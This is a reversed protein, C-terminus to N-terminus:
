EGKTLDNLHAYEGFLELAKANYAKAALEKTDFVGIHIQKYNVMIYARWRNQHKLKRSKHM